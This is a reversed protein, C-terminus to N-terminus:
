RRTIENDFKEGKVRLLREEVKGKEGSRKKKRRRRRNRRGKRRRLQINRVTGDARLNAFNRSRNQLEPSKKREDIM